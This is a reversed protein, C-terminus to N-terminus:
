WLRVFVSNSAQLWGNSQSHPGQHLLQLLSHRLQPLKCGWPPLLLTLLSLAGPYQAVLWLIGTVWAAYTASSSMTPCWHSSLGKPRLNNLAGTYSELSFLCFHTPSHTPSCWWLPLSLSSLIPPESSSVQFLSFMQFTFLSFIKLFVSGDQKNEEFYNWQM